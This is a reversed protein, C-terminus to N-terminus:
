SSQLPVGAEEEGHLREGFAVLAYGLKLAARALRHKRRHISHGARVLRERRAEDLLAERRGESLASLVHSFM